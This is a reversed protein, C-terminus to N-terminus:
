HRIPRIVERQASLFGTAYIIERIFRFPLLEGIRKM